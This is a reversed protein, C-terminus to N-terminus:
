SMGVAQSRTDKRCPRPYSRTEFMSTPMQRTVVLWCCVFKPVSKTTNQNLFPIYSLIHPCAARQLKSRSLVDKDSGKRGGVSSVTLLSGVKWKRGFQINDEIMLEM